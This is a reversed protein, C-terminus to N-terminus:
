DYFGLERILILFFLYSFCYGILAILFNIIFNFKNLKYHYIAIVIAPIIMMLLPIVILVSDETMLFSFLNFSFLIQFLNIVGLAYLNIVFSETYNYEKRDLFYTFFSIVPIMIIMQGIVWAPNNMLDVFKSDSSNTVISAIFANLSLTILFFKIPNFYTKRKGGLYEILIKKPNIILLKLSLFFGNEFNFSDIFSLAVEKFTIKRHIAKQGCQNCFKGDFSNNCNKCNLCNFKIEIFTFM